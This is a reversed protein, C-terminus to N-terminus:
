PRRLTATYTTPTAPTRIGHARPRGNSWRKFVYRKGGIRQRPVDVHVVHNHWSVVRTPTRRLEGGIRVVGAEPRTLFRLSVTRPLLDQSVKTKHGKSDTVTAHAVLNSDAAASLDEPDPFVDSVSGGSKGDLFPHVHNAHRRLITWSIKDTLDGEEPDEATATVTFPQGVSFRSDSSPGTITIQPAHEGVHVTKTAPQSVAGRSDIVSLSVQHPGAVDYQHVVDPGSTEETIGDGFDWSWSTVTDGQDGDTSAGGSFAVTNGEPVYDFAAKPPNNLTSHSVRRVTGTFISLYYLAQGGDHPGFRLQVPGALGSTFLARQYTGDARRDLRWVKGCAYDTFLYAGDFGPWVGRPVFAGGTVSRCNDGHKYAHIPNTYGKVRGCRTTTGRVCNGERANWGYNKGKGLLNVEEWTKLGVDNVHFTSTDPKRAFRFPNRLGLAFIEKCPGTGKPIGAPDTCRRAGTRGAYPNTPVPVGSSLVRLIKGHPVARDQSNTNLPGCKKTGRVTCVGDGVTIYLYGDAGFELDGGVHHASASVINGVIVRETSPLIQNSDPLVFRSVQNVPQRGGPDGCADGRHQTWYLYVYRNTAFGPDVALGVLGLEKASCVRSTIDLAVVPVGDGGMVYLQGAKSTVLMRGDPTWAMGTPMPVEAVVTDTFGGPLQASKAAATAISLEVEPNDSLATSQQATVVGPLSLLGVSCVGALLRGFRIVSV